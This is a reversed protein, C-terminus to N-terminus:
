KATPVIPLRLFGSASKRNKEHRYDELLLLLTLMITSHPLKELHNEHIDASSATGVFIKRTDQIDRAIIWRRFLEKPM